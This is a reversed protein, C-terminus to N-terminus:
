RIVSMWAASPWLWSFHSMSITDILDQRHSRQRACGAGAASGPVAPPDASATAPPAQLRASNLAGPQSGGTSLWQPAAGDPTQSGAPGPSRRASASCGLAGAAKSSRSSSQPSAIVQLLPCHWSCRCCTATELDICRQKDEQSYSKLPVIVTVFELPQLMFIQTIGARPPLLRM